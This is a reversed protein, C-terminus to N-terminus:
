VDGDEVKMTAYITDISYLKLPRNIYGYHVEGLLIHFMQGCNATHDDGLSNTPTLHQGCNANYELASQSVTYPICLM